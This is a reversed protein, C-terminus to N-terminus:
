DKRREEPRSKKIRRQERIKGTNSLGEEKRREEYQPGYQYSLLRERELRAGEERAQRIQEDTELRIKEKKREEKKLHASQWGSYIFLVIAVAILVGTMDVCIDLPNGSRGSVLTQHFEDVCAYVFSIVISIAASRTALVSFFFSLFLLTFLVAYEAMHAAKRVAPHLLETLEAVSRGPMVTEHLVESIEQTVKYSLSASLEGQQGSFRFIVIMWVITPIFWFFRRMVNM